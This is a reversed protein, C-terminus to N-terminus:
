RYYRYTRYIITHIMAPKYKIEIFKLKELDLSIEKGDKDEVKFIDVIVLEALTLKEAIYIVFQKIMYM